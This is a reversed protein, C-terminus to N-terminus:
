RIHFTVSVTNQYLESMLKDADYPTTPNNISNEDISSSSNDKSASIDSNSTFVVKAEDKKALELVSIM